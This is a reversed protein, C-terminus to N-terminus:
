VSEGADDRLKLTRTTLAAGLKDVDVALAAAARAAHPGAAVASVAENNDDEAADFTVEGLLLVGSLADFLAELPAGAVGVVGLVERTRAYRDADSVGEIAATASEGLMTYRMTDRAYGGADLGRAARDAAPAALLQYFIHFNREGKDQGVVRSKELLYTRCRSGVLRKHANLELEIFKGFRSSNDNRITQANTLSYSYYYYRPPRLRLLLLRLLLLV